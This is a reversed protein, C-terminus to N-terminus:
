VDHDVDALGVEPVDRPDPREVFHDFAHAAISATNLDAAQVLGAGVQEVAERKGVLGPDFDPECRVRSRSRRWGSRGDCCTNASTPTRPSNPWDRACTLPM